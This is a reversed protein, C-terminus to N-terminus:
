SQFLRWYRFGVFILTKCITLPSLVIFICPIFLCYTSVGNEIMDLEHSCFERLTMEHCGDEDVEEDDPGFIRRGFETINEMYMQLREERTKGESTEVDGSLSNSAVRGGEWRPKRRRDRVVDAEIDDSSSNAVRERRPKRYNRVGKKGMREEERLGM